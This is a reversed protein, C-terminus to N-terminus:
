CFTAKNGYYKRLFAATEKDTEGFCYVREAGGLVIEGLTTERGTLLARTLLRYDEDYV